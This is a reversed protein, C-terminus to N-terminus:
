KIEMPAQVVLRATRRTTQSLLVVRNETARRMIEDNKGRITLLSLNENYNVRFQQQMEQLADPVYRTNDVCVSISVASSQILSVKLRHRHIIDFVRSLSEELAFAFDKARLTILMQNKRWIYIPVTIPTSPNATIVSGAATPDGFPKVYLPIHKNELPRITKPHIIQAGSYALEVADKYSLEPILVTNEELRPDANLIGPVDKWITVSEAGTLNGLVAATYDSGERGLTTRMGTETGGIFGQAIYVRAPKVEMAARLLMETSEFDINADRYTADTRLIATMDLWEAAFGQAALYLSVMKTSLWEGVSVIQDYMEDYEMTPLCAAIRNIHALAETFLPKVQEAIGLEVAILEHYEVIDRWQEGARVTDGERVADLVRELANTTKGMASIVVILNDDSLSVIHQLNRVGAANRVSAGGFKYIKM